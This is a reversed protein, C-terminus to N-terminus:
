CQPCQRKSEELDFVVRKRELSAPLPRRGHGRRQATSTASAAPTEEAASDATTPAAAQAQSAAVIQAAYLFLQNEDIRERKPGYRQRLLQRLQRQVRELLRDKDEVLQLLELVMQHLATAEQPLNHPDIGM